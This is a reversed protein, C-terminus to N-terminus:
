EFYCGPPLGAHLKARWTELTSHKTYLETWKTEPSHFLPQFNHSADEHYVDMTPFRDRLVDNVGDAIIWQGSRKTFQVVADIAPCIFDTTYAKPISQCYGNYAKVQV